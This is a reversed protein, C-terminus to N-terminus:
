KFYKKNTKLQIRDIYTVIGIGILLEKKNLNLLERGQWSKFGPSGWYCAETIVM